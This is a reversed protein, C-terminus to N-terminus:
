EYGGGVNKKSGGLSESGDLGQNRGGVMKKQKGKNKDTWKKGSFAHSASCGM